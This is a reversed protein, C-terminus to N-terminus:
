VMFLVLINNLKKFDEESLFDGQVEVQTEMTKITRLLTKKTKKKDMIINYAM